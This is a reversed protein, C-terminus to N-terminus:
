TTEWDPKLSAKVRAPLNSAYQKLFRTEDKRNREADLTLYAISDHIMYYRGCEQCILLGDVVDNGTEKFIYLMLDQDERDCYICILLPLIEKDM